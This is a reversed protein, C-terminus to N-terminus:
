NYKVEKDRKKRCFELKDYSKKRKKDVSFPPTFHLSNSTEVICGVSRHQM